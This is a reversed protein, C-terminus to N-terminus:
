IRKQFLGHQNCCCYLYGHGRIHLRTEANGEPYLKVTELRDSSVYAVMSIFHEKTMPHRISIFLEDEIQETEIIHEQDEPEPEQAPLAIGCCSISCDGMAYILNGCIPCVAVKLKMMNAARNRNVVETGTFLEMVSVGLAKALPEILTIDPLGKATEWKSVTKDSVHIREALELQTLQKAERLRKIMAGTVYEKM